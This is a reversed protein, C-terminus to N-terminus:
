HRSEENSYKKNIKVLLMFYSLNDSIRKFDAKLKNDSFQAAYVLGINAGGKDSDPLELQQLKFLRLGNKDLTNIKKIRESLLKQQDINIENVTYFDYSDEQESLLFVGRGSDKDNNERDASYYSINQAIEIFIKFFRRNISAGHMETDLILDSVDKIFHKDFVGKYSFIYNKEAKVTPAPLGFKKLVEFADSNHLNRNV